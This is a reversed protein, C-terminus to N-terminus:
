KAIVNHVRQCQVVVLQQLSKGEIYEQVLIFQVDSATEETYYNLYAPIQPHKLHQLVSAEREFLELTKWEQLCSFHLIKVAVPRRTQLDLAKYTMGMGGRGLVHEIQYRKSKLPNHIAM